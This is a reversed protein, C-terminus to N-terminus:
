SSLSKLSDMQKLFKKTKFVFGTQEEYITSIVRNLERKTEEKVKISGLRKLDFHYFLRLLRATAASIRIYYPDIEYCEHCIFGGERISYGFVGEKRGCVACGDVYPRVGALNLMKMEFINTIIEADYGEDIRQLSQCFLEFLFPDPQKEETLRDLLEAIYSCYAAKFIDERVGKFLHIIDGGQRMQGMGSTQALIFHGYTFLQTIAAFRSKPNKAGSAMVTIKGAEKTFITVVKHSEGYNATRIVIGEVKVTKV